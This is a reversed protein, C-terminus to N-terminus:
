LRAGLPRRHAIGLRFGFRGAAAIVPLLYILDIGGRGILPEVLTGLLTAVTVLALIIAYDAPRGLGLAATNAFRRRCAAAAPIVHVALGDGSKLMADVISGHRLEFWWSRASKGIVLHTARM